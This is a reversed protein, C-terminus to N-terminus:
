LTAGPNKEQITGVRGPLASTCTPTFLGSYYLSVLVKLNTSDMQLAKGHDPQLLRHLPGFGGTTSNDGSSCDLIQFSGPQLRYLVLISLWIPGALNLIWSTHKGRSSHVVALYGAFSPDSLFTSVTSETRWHACSARAPAVGPGAWVRQSGLASSIDSSLTHPIDM